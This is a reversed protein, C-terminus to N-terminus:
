DDSRPRRKGLPHAHMGASIADDGVHTYRETTALSAHGLAAQLERLNLVGEHLGISAFTHRLAHVRVGQRKAGARRLIRDVAYSVARIPNDVTEGIVKGARDHVPRRRTSVLVTEAEIGLRELHAARTPLYEALAEAVVPPVALEREKNGKGVVRLREARAPAPSLADMRLGAMEALRLGCALGLAVILIDREPWRGDDGAADLVAEAVPAALNRPLRRGLKPAKLKRTPDTAIRDTDVAYGFLGRLAAVRRAVSSPSRETPAHEPRRRFRPDPRTRYEALAGDLHDLTVVALDLEDFAALVTSERASPEMAALRRPAPLIGLESAVSVMTDDLDARYAALTRTSRGENALRQLFREVVDAYTSAAMEALTPARVSM